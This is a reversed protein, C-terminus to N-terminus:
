TSVFIKLLNKLIKELPLYRMKQMSTSASPTPLAPPNSTKKRQSPAGQWQNFARKSLHTPRTALPHKQLM